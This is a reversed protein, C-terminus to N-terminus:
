FLLLELVVERCIGAQRSAAYDYGGATGTTQV